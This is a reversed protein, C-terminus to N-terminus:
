DKINERKLVTIFTKFVIYCDFKFNMNKLYFLDYYLKKEDDVADRGNVQALGTIGPLINYIGLNYRKKNIKTESPILPRPGVLSMDGKLVNLLQPLEDISTKRLFMGLPTMYKNAMKIKSTALEHPADQKMTRFKYIMFLQNNKGVRKQSFLIPKGSTILVAFGIFLCPLILLIILILSIIIDLLRKLFCQYIISVQVRRKLIM